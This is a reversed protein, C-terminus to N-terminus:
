QVTIAVPCEFDPHGEAIHLASFTVSGSSTAASGRLTGAFGSTRTWVISAPTPVPEPATTGGTTSGAVKFIAPDNAVPDPQGAANLFSVAISATTNVTLTIPNGTRVCGSKAVNITQANAGSGVLIRMTAIEPEPEPDTTDNCAGLLVTGVACALLRNTLGITMKEEV